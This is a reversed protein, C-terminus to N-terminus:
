FRRWPIVSEWGVRRGDQCDGADIRAPQRSGITAIGAARQSNRRHLLVDGDLGRSLLARPITRRANKIEDGMLSATECGAFAFILVSWFIMDNIRSSPSWPTCTFTTASGYRHWALLGMGIVILVPIWMAIAGHQAAM